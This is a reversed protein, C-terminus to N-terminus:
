YTACLTRTGKANAWTLLGRRGRHVPTKGDWKLVPVMHWRKSTDKTCTECLPVKFVKRETYKSCGRCTRSLVKPVLTRAVWTHGHFRWLSHLYAEWRLCWHDNKRVYSCMVRCTERDIRILQIFDWNCIYQRVVSLIDGPLKVIANSPRKSWKLQSM